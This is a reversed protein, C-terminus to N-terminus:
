RPMGHTEEFTKSCKYTYIVGDIKAESKLRPLVSMSYVRDEGLSIGPFVVTTAISRKIANLHNPPRYYIKNEHDDVWRDYKLSHEFIRSYGDSFVIRGTLSCCDPNSEIAALIKPVYDDSIDDDDDVFAVYDGKAKRLLINRKAGVTLGGSDVFSVVEVEPSQSEIKKTIKELADRRSELSPILVSLKM